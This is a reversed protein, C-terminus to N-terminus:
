EDKEESVPNWIRWLGTGLCAIAYGILLIGLGLWFMDPKVDFCYFGAMVDIGALLMFLIPSQKWFALVSFFMLVTLAMGLSLMNTLNNALLTVSDGVPDGTM